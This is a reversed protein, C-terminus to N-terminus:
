EEFIVKQTAIHNGVQITLLYTGGLWNSKNEYVIENKGKKVENMKTQEIVKGNLDRWTLQVPESRTANFQVTVKNNFPNPYVQWQLGNSSHENVVTNNLDPYYYVEMWVNAANSLVANSWFINKESSSIGGYIYGVLVSDMSQQENSLQVLGNGMENLNQALLLEAGAGLYGPLLQPVLAEQWQGNANQTVCAITKVFPVNNNLVMVGVSDYYQAIGGFFYHEVKQLNPNYIPLTACHYHNYYQAFNNVEAYGNASVDVANLYPIDDNIQFVGSYVSLKENMNTLDLSPLVNFDRRHLLSADYWEEFWTIVGDNAVEFRRIASSYTQSFGPGNNPGMPNYRGDFRHGGVLFFQGNLQLLKGGTIAFRDDEVRQILATNLDSQSLIAAELLPVDFILLSPFTIHDNNITSYGYGGVVFLRNDKQVFCANTSHMQEEVEDPLSSTNHYVVNGTIPNIFSINLNHGAIDFAAFPQRRHLGDLRGGFVIYGNASSGYTYSQLGGLQDNVKPFVKVTQSRAMLASVLVVFVLVIKKM